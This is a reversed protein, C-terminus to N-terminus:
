IRKKKSEIYNYYSHMMIFANLSHEIRDVVPIGFKSASKIIYEFVWRSGFCVCVAPKHYQKALKKMLRFHPSLTFHFQELPWRPVAFIFLIADVNEDKFIVKLSPSLTGFMSPGLDITGEISVWDPIINKITQITEEKLKALSLGKEVIKDCALIGLSGSATIVAVNKGKPLPQSSFIHAMNFMEYFDYVRFIVPNQRFVADYIKDNGAISSTHSKVAKSGINTRGNKLILVPKSMNKLVDFFEKGRNTGELYMTIIDTYPDKNLYELIDVEDVDIKNGLTISKSFGIAQASGWDIFVNGLVGSQAIISIKGELERKFDVEASTFKNRFNTVGVCNPGIIRIPSKKIIDKIEKQLNIYKKIGTEAFGASELIIGNVGKDICDKIAQPVHENGVLIIALEIEDPIDKVNKYAKHGLIESKNLHVPYTKFKSNLLYKTTTFGFRITDSAGIIAISKPNFFIDINSM